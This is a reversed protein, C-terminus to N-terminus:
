TSPIALNWGQVLACITPALCHLEASAFCPWVSFRNGALGNQSGQITFRVIAALLAISVLYGYAASEDAATFSTRCLALFPPALALLFVSAITEPHQGLFFLWEGVNHCSTPVTLGRLMWFLVFGAFLGLALRDAFGRQGLTKAIEDFPWRGWAPTLDTGVVIGLTLVSAVYCLALILAKSAKNDRHKVGSKGNKKTEM